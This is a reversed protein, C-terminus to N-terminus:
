GARAAGSVEPRSRAPVLVPVRLDSRRANASSRASARGLGAAEKILPCRITVMELGSLALWARRIVAALEGGGLLAVVGLAILYTALPLALQRRLPTEGAFDGFFLEGPEGIALVRLGALLENPMTIRELVFVFVALRHLGHLVAGSPVSREACGLTNRERSQYAAIFAHAVRM